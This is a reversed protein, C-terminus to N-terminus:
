GPSATSHYHPCFFPKFICFMAVNGKSERERERIRWPAGPTTQKGAQDDGEARESSTTADEM